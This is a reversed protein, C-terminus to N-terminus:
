IEGLLHHMDEVETLRHRGTNGRLRFLEDAMIHCLVLVAAHNDLPSPSNDRLATAM